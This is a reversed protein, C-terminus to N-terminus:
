HGLDSKDHKYHGLNMKLPKATVSIVKLTATIMEETVVIVKTTASNVKSTATIVEEAVMVLKTTASIVKLTATIM